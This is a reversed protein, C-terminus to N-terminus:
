YHAKGCACYPNAKFLKCLFIWVNWMVKAVPEDSHCLCNDDLSPYEPSNVACGKNLKAVENVSYVGNEDYKIFRMKDYTFQIIGMTLKDTSTDSVTNHSYGIYGCNTYTFNLTEETYRDDGRKDPQPIRITDGPKMFNVSGGIYDDYVGSHNHGYIFIIDLTKAKENLVNFLYSSYMNDGGGTRTSHHLPVHTMVIVPRRDGDAIMADLSSNINDALAKVKKDFRLYQNWPFDNENIVYLCYSGMDYFGTDAFQKKPNDHNGQICVASAPDMEPYVSLLTNRIRSIGPVANDFLIMTYDGGVLLSDPAPMGDNKAINLIKGFRDYAETGSHQFDSASIITSYANPDYTSKVESTGMIVLSFTVILALLVSLSKKFFKKM